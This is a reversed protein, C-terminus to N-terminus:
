MYFTQNRSIYTADVYVLHSLSIGWFCAHLLQKLNNSERDRREHLKLFTYFMFFYTEKWKTFVFVITFTKPMIVKLLPAISSSSCLLQKLSSYCFGSDLWKWRQWHEHVCVFIVLVVKSLHELSKTLSPPSLSLSLMLPSAKTTIFM